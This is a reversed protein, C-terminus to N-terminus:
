AWGANFTTGLQFDAFDMSMTNGELQSQFTMWGFKLIGSDSTATSWGGTRIRTLGTTTDPSGLTNNDLYLDVYGDSAGDTSSSQAVMQVSHWVGQSVNYLFSGCPGINQCARLAVEDYVGGGTQMLAICRTPQYPDHEGPDGIICIKAGNGQTGDTHSQRWAQGGSPLRFRWRAVWLTGASVATPWSLGWGPSTENDTGLVRGIATLRVADQGSPAQGALQSMSWDVGELAASTPDIDWAYRPYSGSQYMDFLLSQAAVRRPSWGGPTMGSQAVSPRAM